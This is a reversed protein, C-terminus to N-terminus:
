ASPVFTAAPEVVPVAVSGVGSAAMSRILSWDMETVMRGFQASMWLMVSWYLCAAAAHPAHSEIRLGRMPPLGRVTRGCLQRRKQPKRNGPCLDAPGSRMVM